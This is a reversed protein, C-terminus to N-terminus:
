CLPVHDRKRIRSLSLAAAGKGEGAVLSDAAFMGMLEESELVLQSVVRNRVEFCGLFSEEDTWFCLQFSRPFVARFGAFIWGFVVWFLARFEGTCCSRFMNSTM